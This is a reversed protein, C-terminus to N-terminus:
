KEKKLREIEARLRRNEKTLRKIEQVTKATVELAGKCVAMDSRPMTAKLRETADM